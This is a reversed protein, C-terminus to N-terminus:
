KWGGQVGFGRSQNQYNQAKRIMEKDDPDILVINSTNKSGFDNVGIYKKVVSCNVCHRTGPISVM